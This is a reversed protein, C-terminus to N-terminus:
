PYQLKMADRVLSMKAAAQARARASSDFLLDRLHNPRGMLEARRARMTEVLTKLAAALKSKVKVDGVM